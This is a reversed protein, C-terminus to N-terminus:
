FGTAVVNRIESVFLKFNETSSGDSAVAGRAAEKLLQVRKRLERGQEEVMLSRVIKEVDDRTVLLDQDLRQPAEVAIRVEDVVFKSNFHQEAYLPWAIMPVGMTTAELVANWGCHSIFGGTSPHALISLQPAWGQLFLGRDEEAM